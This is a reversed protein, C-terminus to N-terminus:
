THRVDEKLDTSCTVLSRAEGRSFGMSMIGLGQIQSNIWDIFGM